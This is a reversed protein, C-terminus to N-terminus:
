IVDNSLKRSKKYDNRKKKELSKYGNSKYILYWHKICSKSFHYEKNNFIHAKDAVSKFYEENCSFGHTKNIAPAIIQFKFLGIDNYDNSKM